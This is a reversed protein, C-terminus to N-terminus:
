RARGNEAVLKKLDQQQAKTLTISNLKETMKKVTKEDKENQALRVVALLADAVLEEQQPFLYSLRLYAQQAERSRGSKELVAARALAASAAEKPIPNKVAKDYFFLAESFEKQEAFLAGLGAFAVFAFNDSRKEDVVSLYHSRAKPFDGQQQFIRAKLLIVQRKLDPDPCAELLGTLTELATEFDKNAFAYHALYLRCDCEYKSFPFRELLRLCAERAEAQRGNDLNLKFHRYNAELKLDKAYNGDELQKLLTLLDSQRGQRQYLDALLLMLPVSYSSDPFRTIFNKVEIELYSFKDQNYALLLLGYSAKEDIAGEPFDKKAQLYVLQAPLYAGRNFHSEGMRIMARGSIELGPYKDILQQYTKIAESFKGLSFLSEGLNYLVKAYLAPDLSSQGSDYPLLLDSFINCAGEFDGQRLAILGRYNQARTLFPSEPYREVFWTLATASEQDQHLNFLAETRNIEANQIILLPKETKRALELYGSFDNVAGIYDQSKLAAWGREYLLDARWAPTFDASLLALVILTQSFKELRNLTRTFLLYLLVRDAVASLREKESFLSELVVLANESEGTSFLIQARELRLVLDASGARAMAGVGLDLTELARDNEGLEAQLRALRRYDDAEVLTGPFSNILQLGLITAAQYDEIEVYAALLERLAAAAVASQRLEEPRSTFVNNAALLNNEKLLSLIEGLFALPVVDDVSAIASQLSEFLAQAEAFSGLFYLCWAQALGAQRQLMDSGAVPEPLTILYSLATRYDRENFSLTALRYLAARYEAAEPYGATLRLLTSRGSEKQGGHFLAEGGWFLAAAALRRDLTESAVAFWKIAAPYRKERYDLWALSYCSFYYFQNSESRTVAAFHTIARAYDEQRFAIEALWYHFDPVLESEKFKELGIKFYDEAEDLLGDLYKQRGSRYYGEAGAFGRALSATVPNRYACGPTQAAATEWGPGPQSKNAELTLNDVVPELKIGPALAPLLGFDRFGELRASDEGIVVVEPLHLGEGSQNSFLPQWSFLFLAILLWATLNKIRSM